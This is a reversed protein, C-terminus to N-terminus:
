CESSLGCLNYLGWLWAGGMLLRPTCPQVILICSVTTMKHCSCVWHIAFFSIWRSKGRWTAVSYDYWEHQSQVQPPDSHAPVRQVATLLSYWWHVQTSSLYPFYITTCDLSWYKKHNERRIMSERWFPWIVRSNTYDMIKLFPRSNLGWRETYWTPPSIM